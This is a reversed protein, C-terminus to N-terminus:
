AELEGDTHALHRTFSAIGGAARDTGGQLESVSRGHRLDRAFAFVTSGGDHRWVVCAL